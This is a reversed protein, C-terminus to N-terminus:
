NTDGSPEDTFNIKNKFDKLIHIFEEINDFAWRETKIYFYGGPETGIELINDSCSDEAYNDPEQVYKISVKYVCNTSEPWATETIHPIM